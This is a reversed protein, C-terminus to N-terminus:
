DDTGTLTTADIGAGILKMGSKLELTQPLEFTGAAIQITSGADGDRVAAILEDVSAVTQAMASVVLGQWAFMTLYVRRLPMM